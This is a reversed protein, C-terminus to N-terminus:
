AIRAALEQEALRNRAGYVCCCDRDVALCVVDGRCVPCVPPQPSFDSAALIKGACPTCVFHGGELCQRIELKPLDYCVCCEFKELDLQLKIDSPLYSWCGRNERLLARALRVADNVGPDGDGEVDVKRRKLRQNWFVPDVELLAAGDNRVAEVVLTPDSRHRRELLRLLRGNQSLLRKLFSFNSKLAYSVRLDWVAQLRQLHEKDLGSLADRADCGTMAAEVVEADSSLEPTTRHLVEFASHVTKVIFDKRGKHMKGVPSSFFEAGWSSVAAEIVDEDNWYREPLKELEQPDMAVGTRLFDRDNWLLPPVNRLIGPQRFVFALAVERDGRLEQPLLAFSAGRDNVFCAAEVMFQKDIYNEPLCSLFGRPYSKLPWLTGSWSGYDDDSRAYVGRCFVSVIARSELKMLFSPAFAVVSSLCMRLSADLLESDEALEPRNACARRLFEVVDLGDTKLDSRILFLLIEKEAWLSAPLKKTCFELFWELFECKQPPCDDLDVIFQVLRERGDQLSFIKILEEDLDKPPLEKQSRDWELWARATEFERDGM